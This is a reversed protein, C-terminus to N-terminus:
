ARARQDLRDDVDDLRGDGVRDDVRGAAGAPEQEGGVLVGGAVGGLRVGVSRSCRRSSTRGRRRARDVAGGPQRRHVQQQVADPRGVPSESMSWYPRASRRGRRATSRRAPWGATRACTELVVIPAVPSRRRVRSITRWSKTTVVDLLCSLKRCCMMVIRSMLPRAATTSGSLTSKSPPAPSVSRRLSSVSKSRCVSSRRGVPM